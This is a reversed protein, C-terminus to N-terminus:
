DPRSLAKESRALQNNIVRLQNPSEQARASGVIESAKQLEAQAKNWLERAGTTSTEREAFKIYTRGMNLYVRGLQVRDGPEGSLNKEGFGKAQVYYSLSQNLEGAEAHTNGLQSLLELKYNIAEHHKGDAAIVREMHTLAQRFDAASQAYDRRRRHYLALSNYSDGVDFVAQLNNPDFKALEQNFNFCDKLYGYSEEVRGADGLSIGVNCVGIKLDRRRDMTPPGGRYQAEYVKATERFLHLAREFYPRAGEDGQDLEVLLRGHEGFNWGLDSYIHKRLELTAPDAPAIREADALIPLIHRGYYRDGEDFNARFLRNGISRHADALDIRLSLDDPREKLMEELIAIRKGVLRAHEDRAVFSIPSEDLSTDLDSALMREIERRTAADSCASDLFVHQESPALEVAADFIRKIERWSEPTM